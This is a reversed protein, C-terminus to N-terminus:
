GVVAKNKVVFNHLIQINYSIFIALSKLRYQADGRIKFLM